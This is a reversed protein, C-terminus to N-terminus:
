RSASRLPIVNEAGSGTVHAAWADLAEAREKAFDHRQYIRGVAGLRTPQHALIKDAVISDFGLRALTSVGSRRLDHAWWEALQEPKGGTKAAREARAQVIATDLATKAKSFGSVPTTGTTTLVLDCGEIRPTDQLVALTADSLHM